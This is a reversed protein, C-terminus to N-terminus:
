IPLRVPIDMIKTGPRFYATQISRDIPSVDILGSPTNLESESKFVIRGDPTKTFTSRIGSGFTKQSDKNYEEYLRGSSDRAPIAHELRQLAQPDRVLAPLQLYQSFLKTATDIDGTRAAKEMDMYLRRVIASGESVVGKFPNNGSLSDYMLAQGATEKGPQSLMYSWILGPSDPAYM